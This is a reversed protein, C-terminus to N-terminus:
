DSNRGIDPQTLLIMKVASSTRGIRCAMEEVTLKGANDRVFRKEANTWSGQNM